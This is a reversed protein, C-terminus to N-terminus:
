CVQDTYIQGMNFSIGIELLVIVLFSMLFIFLKLKSFYVSSSILLPVMCLGVLQGLGGAFKPISSQYFLTGL